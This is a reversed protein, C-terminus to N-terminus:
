RTEMVVRVGVGVGVGIGSEGACRKKRVRDEWGDM